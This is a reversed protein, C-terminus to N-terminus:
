YIAKWEGALFASRYTRRTKRPLIRVEPNDRNAFFFEACVVSHTHTHTHGRVNKHFPHAGRFTRDSSCDLNSSRSVAFPLSTAVKRSYPVLPNSPLSRQVCHMTVKSPNLGTSIRNPRFLATTGGPNVAPRIFCNFCSQRSLIWQNFNMGSKYQKRQIGRLSYKNGAVVEM